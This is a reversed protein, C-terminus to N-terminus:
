CLDLKKLFEFRNRALGVDTWKSLILFIERKLSSRTSLSFFYGVPLDWLEEKMAVPERTMLLSFPSSNSIIPSELALLSDSWRSIRHLYPLISHHYSHLYSPTSSFSFFSLNYLLTFSLSIFSLLTFSLFHPFLFNSSFIIQRENWQLNLYYNDITCCFLLSLFICFNIFIQLCKLSSVFM